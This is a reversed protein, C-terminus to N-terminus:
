PEKTQEAHVVFEPGEAEAHWLHEVHSV